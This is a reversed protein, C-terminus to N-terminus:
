LGSPFSTAEAQCADLLRAADPLVTDSGCRPCLATVGGIRKGDCGNDVETVPFIALCHFCRLALECRGAPRQLPEPRDPPDRGLRPRSENFVRGSKREM